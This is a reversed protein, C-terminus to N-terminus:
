VHAASGAFCDRDSPGAGAPKGSRSLDARDGVRGFSEHFRNRTRRAAGIRRWCSSGAIKSRAAIRSWAYTTASVPAFAASTALTLPEDPLLEFTDQAPELRELMAGHLGKPDHPGPPILDALTVHVGVDLASMIKELFAEVSSGRDKNAPSVIELLAVLRHGSVHRIALSRRHTLAAPRDVSQKLRAKPPADAVAIGGRESPFPAPEQGPDSTHLTSVDAIPRGFHQEALAYFGAPLVGDNLAKQIETVWATHFAHDIGAEVLTWDHVPM